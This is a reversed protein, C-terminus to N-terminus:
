RGALDRLVRDLELRLTEQQLMADQVRQLLQPFRPDNALSVGFEDLLVIQFFARRGENLGEDTDLQVSRLAARLDTFLDEHIASTGSEAREPAPARAKRRTPDTRAIAARIQALLRQTQDVGSM